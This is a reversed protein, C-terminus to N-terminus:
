PLPLTEVPDFERTATEIDEFVPQLISAYKDPMEHALYQVTTQKSQGAMLRYYAKLLAKAERQLPQNRPHDLLALLNAYYGPFEGPRDIRWHAEDFVLLRNPRPSDVRSLAFGKGEADKKEYYMFIPDNLAFAARDPLDAPGLGGDLPPIYAAATNNGSTLIYYGFCCNAGGTFCNVKLTHDGPLPFNELSPDTYVERMDNEHRSLSQNECRVDLKASNPGQKVLVTFPGSVITETGAAPCALPFLPLSCALIVLFLRFKGILAPQTLTTM